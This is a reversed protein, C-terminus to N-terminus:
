SNFCSFKSNHEETNFQIESVAVIEERDYETKCPSIKILKKATNPQKLNLRRKTQNNDNNCLNKNLKNGVNFGKNYLAHISKLQTKSDPSVLKKLIKKKDLDLRKVLDVQSTVNKLNINNEKNTLNSEQSRHRKSINLDSKLNVKSNINNLTKHNAQHSLRM